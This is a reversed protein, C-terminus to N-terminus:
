TAHTARRTRKLARSRLTSTSASPPRARLRRAAFVVLRFATARLTTSPARGVLVAESRTQPLFNRAIWRHKCTKM